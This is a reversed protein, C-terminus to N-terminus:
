AKSGSQNEWDIPAVKPVGVAYVLAGLVIIAATLWFTPGYGGSDVIAGTIVPLLFSGTVQGINALASGRGQLRPPV